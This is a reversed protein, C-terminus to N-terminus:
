NTLWCTTRINSGYAYCLTKAEDVASMLYNHHGSFCSGKRNDAKCQWRTNPRQPNAAKPTGNRPRDIVECIITFADAALTSFNTVLAIFCGLMILKKM